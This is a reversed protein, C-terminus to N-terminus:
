KNPTNIAVLIAGSLSVLGGLIQMKNLNFMGLLLWTFLVIFIPYTIEVLAAPGTDTHTEYTSVIWWSVSISINILVYVFVLTFDIKQNPISIGFYYCLSLIGLGTLIQMYGALAYSANVLIAWLVSSLGTLVPIALMIQMRNM